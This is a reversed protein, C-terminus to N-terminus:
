FRHASVLHPRSKLAQSVDRQGRPSVEAPFVISMHTMEVDVDGEGNDEASAELTRVWSMGQGKIGPRTPLQSARQQLDDRLPAISPSIQVSPVKYSLRIGSSSDPRAPRLQLYAEHGHPLFGRNHPSPPEQLCDLPDASEDAWDSWPIDQSDRIPLMPIAPSEIQPCMDIPANRTSAQPYQLYRHLDTERAPTSSRSSVSASVAKFRVRHPILKHEVQWHAPPGHQITAHNPAHRDHSHISDETYSDDQIVLPSSDPWPRSEVSEVRRMISKPRHTQRARDAFQFHSLPTSTERPPSLQMPIPSDPSYPFISHVDSVCDYERISTREPEDTLFLQEVRHSLAHPFFPVPPYYPALPQNPQVVEQAAAV